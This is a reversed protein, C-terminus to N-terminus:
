IWRGAERTRGTNSVRDLEFRDVRKAAEAWTSNVAWLM